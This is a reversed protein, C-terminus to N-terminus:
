KASLGVLEKRALLELFDRITVFRIGVPDIWRQLQKRQATIRFNWYGVIGSLLLHAIGFKIPSVAFDALM